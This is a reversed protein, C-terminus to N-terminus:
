FRHGVGIGINLANEHHTILDYSVTPWFEWGHGISVEFDVGLRTLYYSHDPLFEVGPGGFLVVHHIPQWLLDLTTIIPYEHDIEIHQDVQVQKNIIEIDNHTGIGLRHDFWYELDFGVAPVDVIPHGTVDHSQLFTHCLVVGAKFHSNHESKHTDHTDVQANLGASLLFLVTFLTIRM